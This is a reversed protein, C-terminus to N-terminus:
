VYSSIFVSHVCVFMWAEFPNLGAIETKSCANSKEVVRIPVTNVVASYYLIIYKGSSASYIFGSISAVPKFV